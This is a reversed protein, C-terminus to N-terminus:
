TGQKVQQATKPENTGAIHLQADHTWTCSNGHPWQRIPLLQSPVNNTKKVVYIYLLPCITQLNSIEWKDM